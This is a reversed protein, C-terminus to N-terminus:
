MPIVQMLIKRMKVTEDCNEEPQGLSNGFLSRLFPSM